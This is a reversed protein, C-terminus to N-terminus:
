NQKKSSWDNYDSESLEIINLIVIGVNEYKLKSKIQEITIQMNPYCGNTVFDTQGFGHVKNNNLGFSVIFDRKKDMNEM